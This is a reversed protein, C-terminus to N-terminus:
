LQLSIGAYIGSYDIHMIRPDNNRDPNIYSYNMVRYGLYYRIWNNQVATLRLYSDTLYMYYSDGPGPFLNDLLQTDLNTEVELLLSENLRYGLGLTLMLDVDNREYEIEQTGNTATFDQALRGFGFGSIFDFEDNLHRYYKYGLTFNEFKVDTDIVTPGSFTMGYGEIEVSSGVALSQSFNGSGIGKRVYLIGYGKTPDERFPWFSFPPIKDLTTSLLAIEVEPMVGFGVSGNTGAALCNSGWVLTLVTLIRRM